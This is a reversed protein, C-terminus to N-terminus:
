CPVSWAAAAGASKLDTEIRQAESMNSLKAAKTSDVDPMRASADYQQAAPATYSVKQPVPPMAALPDIEKPAHQEM